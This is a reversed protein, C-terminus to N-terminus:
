TLVEPETEVSNRFKLADKVTKCDPHVGEIHYTGISPNKMKLYPRHRNDGLDLTLLEYGDQTDIVKANLAESIRELGIKRVIERRVEANQETLVSKPDLKDAPTMILEETVWVGNISYEAYGDRWAIAPGTESHLDGNDNRGVICPRICVFAVNECLVTAFVGSNLIFEKWVDFRLEKDYELGIRQFFDYFATWGSDYGCGLYDITEGKQLGAEQAMHMPSSCIVIEPEKLDALGYIFNIGEQIKKVDYSDDGSLAKQEYEAAVTAMLHNQEDTLEDIRDM